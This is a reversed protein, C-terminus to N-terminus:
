SEAVQDPGSHRQVSVMFADVFLAIRDEALGLARAREEALTRIVELQAPSLEPLRAPAAYVGPMTLVDFGTRDDFDNPPKAAWAGVSAGTWPTRSSAIVMGPVTLLVAIRSATTMM